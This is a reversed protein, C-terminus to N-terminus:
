NIRLSINKRLVSYFKEYELMYGQKKYRISLGGFFPEGKVDDKYSTQTFGNLTAEDKIKYWECQCRLNYSISIIPNKDSNKCRITIFIPSGNYKTEIEAEYVPLDHEKTEENFELFKKENWNVLIPFIHRYLDDANLKKSLISAMYSLSFNFKGLQPRNEKIANVNLLSILYFTQRLQMETGDNRVSDKINQLFKAHKYDTM